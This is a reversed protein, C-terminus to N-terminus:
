DQVCAIRFSVTGSYLGPKLLEGSADVGINATAIPNDIYDAPYFSAIWGSESVIENGYDKTLHLDGTNGNTAQVAFVGGQRLNTAYVDIHYGEEVNCMDVTIDGSCNEPTISTPITVYFSSYVRYSVNTDGYFAEQTEDVFGEQTDFIIDEAFANASSFLLSVAFILAFLKRKM